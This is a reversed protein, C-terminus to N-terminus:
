SAYKHFIEMAQFVAIPVCFISALVTLAFSWGLTFNPLVLRNGYIVIGTIM